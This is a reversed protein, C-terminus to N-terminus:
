DSEDKEQAEETMGYEIHEEWELDEPQAAAVEDGKTELEEVVEEENIKLEKM